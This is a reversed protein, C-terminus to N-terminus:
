EGLKEDPRVRKWVQHAAAGFSTGTSSYNMVDGKIAITRKQVTGNFNPFSSSVMHLTLTGSDDVTYTGFYAIFGQVIAKDEEPTTKYRNGSAIKPLNARAIQSFYRGNAEFVAIGIPNLGFFEVRKGNQEAEASVLKWTGVIRDKNSMAKEQGSATIGLLVFGLVLSTAAIPLIKAIRQLSGIRSTM